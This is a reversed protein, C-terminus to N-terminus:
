DSSGVCWDFLTKWERRQMEVLEMPNSEHLREVKALFEHPDYWDMAPHKECQRLWYRSNWFDGERRHMIAHWYAGTRNHLSQSIEHSRELDDVYLWLGVAIEPSVATAIRSVIRVGEAHPRVPCLQPMAVELPITEFLEDFRMGGNDGPDVPLGGGRHGLLLSGVGQRELWYNAGM